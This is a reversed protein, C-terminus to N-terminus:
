KSTNKIIKIVDPNSFMKKISEIMKKSEKKSKEISNMGYYEGYFGQMINDNKFNIFDGPDIHKHFLLPNFWDKINLHKINYNNIQCDATWNEELINTIIKAKNLADKLYEKCNDKYAKSINFLNNINENKLNIISDFMNTYNALVYRSWRDISKNISEIDPIVKGQKIIMDCFLFEGEDYVKFKCNKFEQSLEILSYYVIMANFENGQVKTFGNIKNTIDEIIILKEKQLQLITDIDSLKKEQKIKDYRKDIKNWSNSKIDRNPYYPMPDMDFSECTWIKDDQKSMSFELIKQKEAKTFNGTEKEMSYHLTRGM